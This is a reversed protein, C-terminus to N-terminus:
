DHIQKFYDNVEKQLKKLETTIEANERMLAANKTDIAIIRDKELKVRQEDEELQLKRRHIEFDLDQHIRQMESKAREVDEVKEKELRVRMVEIEKIKLEYDRQTKSLMDKENRLM